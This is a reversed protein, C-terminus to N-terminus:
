GLSGILERAAALAAALAEAARTIEEPTVVAPPELRLVEMNNISFGSLVRHQILGAIVLGGVDSDYFEVGVLLGRGRVEKVLDEYGTVARRVETLLQEGRERARDALAEEEIVELAAIGAACALPNGGFTSSHLYPNERFMGWVEPRGVFAGLPMVGGGLAKGITMIDPAVHEWDCAWMRGTRALGSQIEDFILLSGARDCVERVARLYGDPPIRIGAECQIPELIVAATDTTVAAELAEVDGFSVHTFSELLPYFPKRYAERGSASLAGFTKGHFAGEMAVFGPRGTAARALKLAGEVAEAGSNCFFSFQLPGPAVNAVREALEATLPSLLTHSGLPMRDLQARVAEVIKPHRHGMTFVGPGGLFDLYREGRADIVYCGESEAEVTNLGMFEVLSALGPNLFERYRAFTRSILAEADPM